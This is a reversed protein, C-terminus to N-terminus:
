AIVNTLFTCIKELRIGGVSLHTCLLNKISQLVLFPYPCIITSDPHTIVINTRLLVKFDELANVKFINKDVTSYLSRGNYRGPFMWWDFHAHKRITSPEFLFRHMTPLDKGGIESASAGPPLISSSPLAYQVVANVIPTEMSIENQVKFTVNHKSPLSELAYELQRTNNISIIPSTRVAKANKEEEEEEEGNGEEAGKDKCEVCLGGNVQELWTIREDVWDKDKTLGGGVAENAEGWAKSIVRYRCLAVDMDSTMNKEHYLSLFYILKKHCLVCEMGAGSSEGSGNSGNILCHYYICHKFQLMHLIEHHLTKSCSRFFSGIQADTFDSPSLDKVTKGDDFFPSHRAFSFVGVREDMRAQGYVFNWDEGPYIDSMTIAMTAYSSHIRSTSQRILSFIDGILYQKGGADNTRSTCGNLSVTATHLNVPIPHFYAQACKMLNPLFLEGVPSAFGKGVLVITISDFNDRPRQVMGGTKFRRIYEAFTQGSEKREYLWDGPRPKGLRVFHGPDDLPNPEASTLYSPPVKPVDLAAKTKKLSTNFSM